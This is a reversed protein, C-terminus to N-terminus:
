IQEETISRGVAKIQKYARKADLICAWTDEDIKDPRFMRVREILYREAFSRFRQDSSPLPDILM